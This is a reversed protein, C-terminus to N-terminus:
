DGKTPAEPIATLRRNLPDCHCSLQLIPWSHVLQTVRRTRPAGKNVTLSVKGVRKSRNRKRISSTVAENRIPVFLAAAAAAAAAAM